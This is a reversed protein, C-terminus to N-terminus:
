MFAQAAVSRGASAHEAACCDIANLIREATVPAGMFGAGIESLRRRVSEPMAAAYVLVRTAPAHKLIREAAELGNQDELEFAVIALRPLPGTWAGELELQSAADVIRANPYLETLAAVAANRGDASKDLALVTMRESAAGKTEPSIDPM